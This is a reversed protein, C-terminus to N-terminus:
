RRCRRRRSVRPRRACLRGLAAHGGRDRHFQHVVPRQQVVVDHVAVGFAQVPGGGPCHEADAGGDQGAVRQQGQGLVHQELVASRLTQGQDAAMRYWKVAQEYDPKGQLGMAFINGLIAEARANGLEGAKEFYHTARGIDPPVGEPPRAYYGALDLLAPLLNQDAAATLWHLYEKDDQPVGSGRKYMLALNYQAVADGGEAGQRFWTVSQAADKPMGIGDAYMLGLSTAADVSGHAIAKKYWDIAEAAAPASRGVGTEAFIGLSEEAAMFSQDAAKHLWREAEADDKKM